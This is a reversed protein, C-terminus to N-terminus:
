GVLNILQNMILMIFIVLRLNFAWTFESHYETVSFLLALSLPKTRTITSSPVTHSIRKIIWTLLFAQFSLRLGHLRCMGTLQGISAERNHKCVWNFWLFGSVSREESLVAEHKIDRHWIFNKLDITRQWLDLSRNVTWARRKHTRYPLEKERQIISFEM